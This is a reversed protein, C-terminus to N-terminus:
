HKQWESVRVLTYGWGLGVRVRVLRLWRRIPGRWGWYVQQCLLKAGVPKCITHVTCVCNCIWMNEQPLKKKQCTYSFTYSMKLPFYVCKSLACMLVCCLSESWLGRVWEKACWIIMMYTDEDGRRCVRGRMPVDSSREVFRQSVSCWMRATLGFCLERVAGLWCLLWVTLNSLSSFLKRIISCLVDNLSQLLSGSALHLRM